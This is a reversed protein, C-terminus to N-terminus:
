WGNWCRIEAVVFSDRTAYGRSRQIAVVKISKDALLKEKAAQYDVKGNALLDTYDFNIGYEKMTGPNNGAVRSLKTTASIM